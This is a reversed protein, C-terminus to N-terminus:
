KRELFVVGDLHDIEHYICRATLGAYTELIPHGSLNRYKVTVKEPREIDYFQEPFSLCGENMVCTEKSTFVIEPNVMVKPQENITVVIIRKLIGVQPAALGIGNNKEMCEVMNAAINRIKDDIKDVRKSKRRLLKSDEKLLEMYPTLM